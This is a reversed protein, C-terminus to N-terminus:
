DTTLPRFVTAPAGRAMGLVVGVLNAPAADSDSRIPRISQSTLFKTSPLRLMRSMRLATEASYSGTGSFLM